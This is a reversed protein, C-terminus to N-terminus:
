KYHKDRLVKNRSERKKAQRVNAAGRFIASESDTRLMSDAIGIVLHLQMTM